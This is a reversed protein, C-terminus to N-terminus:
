FKVPSNVYTKPQSILTLTPIRNRIADNENKVESSSYSPQFRELSEPRRSYYVHNIIYKTNTKEKDLKM